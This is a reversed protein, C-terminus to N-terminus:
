GDVRSGALTAIRTAIEVRRVDVNRAQAQMERLANTDGCRAQAVAHLAGNLWWWEREIERELARLKDLEDMCFVGLKPEGTAELLNEKQELGLLV